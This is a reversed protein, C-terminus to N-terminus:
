NRVQRWSCVREEEAGNMLVTCESGRGDHRQVDKGIGWGAGSRSAVLTDDVQWAIFAKSPRGTVMWAPDDDGAACEAGPHTRDLNPATGRALPRSRM